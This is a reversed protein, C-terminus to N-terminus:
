AGLFAVWSKSLIERAIRMGSQKRTQIFQAERCFYSSNGLGLREPYPGTTEQLFMSQSVPQIEKRIRHGTAGM